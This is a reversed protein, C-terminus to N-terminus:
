EVSRRKGQLPRDIFAEWRCQYWPPPSKIWRNYLWEIHEYIADRKRDQRVGYILDQFAEFLRVVTGREADKFLQEDIDGNRIGASIFEFHNLIFRVAKYEQESLESPKPCPKSDHTYPKVTILSDLYTANFGTNLLANFTHQKRSLRRNRRATYVWGLMVVVVSLITAWPESM